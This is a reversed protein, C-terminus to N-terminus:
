RKNIHDTQDINIDHKSQIININLLKLKAGEKFTYDFMTDFTKTLIEFLITNHTIM